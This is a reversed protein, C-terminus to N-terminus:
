RNLVVQAQGLKADGTTILYVGSPYASLDIETEKADADVVIRELIKGSFDCLFIANMGESNTIQATGSTPNPFVHLASQKNSINHEKISDTLLFPTTNCRSGKLTVEGGDTNSSRTVNCFPPNSPTTKMIQGGCTTMSGCSTQCFIVIPMRYQIFELGSKISEDVLLSDNFTTPINSKSIKHVTKKTKYGVYSVELDYTGPDLNPLRYVGNDDSVAGKILSGNKLLKVTADPLPLNSDDYITGTLETQAHMLLPLALLLLILKKMVIPKLNPQL